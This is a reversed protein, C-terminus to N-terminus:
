SGKPKSVPPSKPVGGFSPPAADDGDPETGADKTEETVAAPATTTPEETDSSCASILAVLGFTGVVVLLSLTTHRLPNEEQRRLHVRAEHM